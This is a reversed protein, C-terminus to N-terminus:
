TLKESSCTGTSVFSAPRLPFSFGRLCFQRSARRGVGISRWRVVLKAAAAADNVWKLHARRRRKGNALHQEIQTGSPVDHYDSNNNNTTNDSEFLPSHSSLLDRQSGGGGPFGDIPCSAPAERALCHFNSEMDRNNGNIHYKKRRIRCNVLRLRSVSPAVATAFKPPEM